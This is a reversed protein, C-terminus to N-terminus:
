NYRSILVIFIAKFLSQHTPIEIEGACLSGNVKRLSEAVLFAFFNALKESNQNIVFTDNVRFFYGHIIKISEVQNWPSIIKFKMVFDNSGTDINRFGLGFQTVKKNLIEKKVIPHIIQEFQTFDKKYDEM